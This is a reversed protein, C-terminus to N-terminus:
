CFRTPCLFGPVDFSGGDDRSDGYSNDDRTGRRGDPGLEYRRRDRERERERAEREARVKVEYSACAGVPGLRKKDAVVYATVFSSWYGFDLEHMRERQQAVSEAVTLQGHEPRVVVTPDPQALGAAVLRQNLSRAALDPKGDATVPHLFGDDGVSFRGDRDRSRVVAVTAGIPAGKQIAATYQQGYDDKVAYDCRRIPLIRALDIEAPYKAGYDLVVLDDILGKYGVVEGVWVPDDALAEQAQERSVREIRALEEASPACATVGLVAGLGVLAGAARRLRRDARM